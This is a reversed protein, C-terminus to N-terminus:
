RVEMTYSHVENGFNIYYGDETIDYLEAQRITHQRGITYGCVMSVAVLTIAIATKYNHQPKECYGVIQSQLKNLWADMEYVEECFCNANAELVENIDFIVSMVNDDTMDSLKTIFNSGVEEAFTNYFKKISFYLKIKSM